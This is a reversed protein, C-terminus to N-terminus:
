RRAPHPPPRPPDAAEGALRPLPPARARPRRPRPHAPDGGGRNGLVHHGEPEGSSADKPPEGAPGDCDDHLPGHRGLDTPARPAQRDFDAGVGGACQLRPLGISRQAASGPSAVSPAAVYWGCYVRRDRVRRSLSYTYGNEQWDLTRASRTRRREGESTCGPVRGRPERAERSWGTPPGPPGVAVPM